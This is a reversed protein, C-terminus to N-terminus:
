SSGTGSSVIGGILIESLSGSRPTCLINKPVTPNAISPHFVGYIAERDIEDPLHDSFNSASERIAQFIDFESIPDVFPKLKAL